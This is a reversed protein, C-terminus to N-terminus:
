EAQKGMKNLIAIAGAHGKAALKRLWKVAEAENKEVGIGKGYMIALAYQANVDGAKAKAKLKSDGM